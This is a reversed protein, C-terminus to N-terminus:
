GIVDRRRAYVWLGVCAGATALLLDTVDPYRSPLFVQGAEVVSFWTVWVAVSALVAARPYRTLGRALVAGTCLGVPLGLALKILAGGLGDFEPGEYYSSFPVQLLASVRAQVDDPRTFDFPSLNYAAYLGFAAVLAALEWPVRRPYAAAERNSVLLGAVTVGLAVGLSAAMADGIDAQRSRVIVQAAELACSAAAGVLVAVVGPRRSGLRRAVRWALLGVPAGLVVDAAVAQAVDPRRFFAAPDVVIGGRRFKEALTSVSVTVDLPLLLALARGAAYLWLVVDLGEPSTGRIDRAAWRYVDRRVATWAVMGVVLGMAQAVVDALSPTRNPTLAQLAEVVVTTGLAVVVLIALRGVAAIGTRRGLAAGAGFAGVPVFLLVNAIFNARSTIHWEARAALAAGLDSLSREFRFAVLGIYSAFCM